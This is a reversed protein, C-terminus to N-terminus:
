RAIFVNKAWNSIPREFYLHVLLALVLVFVFVGFLVLPLSAFQSFWVILTKGFYNHLLYLPYSLAGMLLWWRGARKVNRYSTALWYFFVYFSAVIGSAILKDVFLPNKLFNEAQTFGTLVGFIGSLWYVVFLFISKDVKTAIQCSAVGGIFYFSYAPNIFWGMFFPQRFFYFLVACFLWVSLWVRFNALLGLFLLGAICAYFKLEAQLTWYVGDINEVGFYDNVILLNLIIQKAEYTREALFYGGLISILLCISFAPYLRIARATIFQRPSAREASLLIVFGSLMFFFVVGLYGFRSVSTFLNKTSVFASYHYMVVALAALLRLPDLVNYRVREPNDSNTM